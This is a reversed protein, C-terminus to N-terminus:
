QGPLVTDGFNTVSQWGGPRSFRLVDPNGTEVWELEEDTQLECRLRLATRYLQLTSGETGEQAEVAYKCPWAAATM